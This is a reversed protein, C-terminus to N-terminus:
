AAAEASVGVRNIEAACMKEIVQASADTVIRKKSEKLIIEFLFVALDRGGRIEKADQSEVSLNIKRIQDFLVELIIILWADDDVM